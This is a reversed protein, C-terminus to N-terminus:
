SYLFSLARRQAEEDIRADPRQQQSAILRGVNGLDTPEDASQLRSFAHDRGPEHKLLQELAEGTRLRVLLDDLSERRKRQDNGIPLIVNRCRLKAGNTPLATHLDASDVHQQRLQAHTVLQRQERRVTNEPEHCIM